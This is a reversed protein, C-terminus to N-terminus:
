SAWIRMYDNLRTNDYDYPIRDSTEKKLKGDAAYQCRYRYQIKTANSQVSVNEIYPLFNDVFNDNTASSTHELGNILRIKGRIEYQGDPYRAELNNRAYSTRQDSYTDSARIKTELETFYYHEWPKAPVDTSYCSPVIGTKGWAGMTGYGPAFSSNQAYAPSVLKDSPTTEGGYSISADRDTGKIVSFSTQSTKKIELSIKDINFVSTNFRSVGIDENLMRARFLIPTKKKEANQMVIGAESAPIADTFVDSITSKIFTLSYTPSQHQIFKLPNCANNDSWLAPGTLSADQIGQVHLHTAYGGDGSNGIPAIPAGRQVINTCGIIQGNVKIKHTPDTSYAILDQTDFIANFPKNYRDIGVM